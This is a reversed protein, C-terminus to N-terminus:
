TAKGRKSRRFPADAEIVEESSKKRKTTLNNPTEAKMKATKPTSDQTTTQLTIGEQKFLVYAVKEVDMASVGLRKTLKRAEVNLSEYEKMNYKLSAKQGKNCLWYYAEDSFFLVQDPFHVALLLSATAPGIGKLKTLINLAAALDSADRYAEIGEKVIEEVTSSDNSSVLKMLTPRFKGHRLKWDVLVKVDDHEMDRKPDDQSFQAPAEVFRFLDLEHLTKQGPKAGKSASISNILPEYHDLLQKFEDGSVKDPSVLKTSMIHAISPTISDHCIIHLMRRGLMIIRGGIAAHALALPHLGDIREPAWCMGDKTAAGMGVMVESRLVGAKALQYVLQGEDQQYDVTLSSTGTLCGLLAYIRDLREKCERGATMDWLDGLEMKTQSGRPWGYGSHYYYKWNSLGSGTCVSDTGQRRSFLVKQGDRRMDRVNSAWMITDMNCSTGLGIVALNGSLAAEQFTWMRSTWKASKLQDRWDPWAKVSEEDVYEGVQIDTLKNLEQMEPVVAVTLAAGGYYRGMKPVETEKDELNNQMICRADVWLWDIGAERVLKLIPGLMTTLDVQEWCYSLAAYRGSGHGDEVLGTTTNIIRTPLPGVLRQTKLRRQTERDFCAPVDTPFAPTIDEPTTGARSFRPARSEMEAELESYVSVAAGEFDGDALSAFTRLLNKDGQLSAPKAGLEVAIEYVCTPLDMM